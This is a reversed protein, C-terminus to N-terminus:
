TKQAMRAGTYRAYARQEQRACARRLNRSIDRQEGIVAEPSLRQRFSLGRKLGADIVIVRASRKETAQNGINSDIGVYRAQAGTGVGAISARKILPSGPICTDHGICERARCRTGTVIVRLCEEAGGELRQTCSQIVRVVVEAAPRGGIQFDVCSARDDLTDEQDAM